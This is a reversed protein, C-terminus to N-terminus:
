EVMLKYANMERSANKVILTFPGQWSERVGFSLGDTADMDCAVLEGESDYLFLQLGRARGAEVAIAELRTARHQISWRHSQGPGIERARTQADAPLESPTTHSAASAVLTLSLAAIALLKM